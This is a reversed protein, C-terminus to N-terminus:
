ACLLNHGGGGFPSAGFGGDTTSAGLVGGFIPPGFVGGFASAGFVGGFSPAEAGDAGSTGFATVAATSGAFSSSGAFFFAARELTGAATGTADDAAAKKSGTGFIAGGFAWGFSCPAEVASGVDVFSAELEFDNTGFIFDRGLPLSWGESSCFGTDM